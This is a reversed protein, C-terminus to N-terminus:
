ILKYSIYWIFYSIHHLLDGLYMELFPQFNWFLNWLSTILFIWSSFFKVGLRIRQEKCYDTEEDTEEHRLKECDSWEMNIQHIQLFHELFHEQLSRVFTRCRVTWYISCEFLSGQLLWSRQWSWYCYGWCYLFWSISWKFAQRFIYNCKWAM